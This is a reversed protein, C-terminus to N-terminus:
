IKINNKISQFKAEGIGKVEMIEEIEEFQKQRRYEIINEATKEGM